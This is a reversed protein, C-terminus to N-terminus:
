LSKNSGGFPSSGDVVANSTSHEELQAVSTNNIFIHINRENAINIMHETGRSKGDWIAILADAFEAMKENRLYGARKGYKDWNPYFVNIKLQHELAYREGLRDVGAAAGSVVESIFFGSKEIADLVLKYDTINRSGAIIVKM